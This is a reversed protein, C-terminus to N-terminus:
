LLSTSRLENVKIIIDLKNNLTAVNKELVYLAKNGSDVKEEINDMKEELNDFRDNIQALLEETTM